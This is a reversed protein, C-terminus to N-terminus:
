YPNPTTGNWVSFQKLVAVALLRFLRHGHFKSSARLITGAKEQHRQKTARMGASPQCPFNLGLLVKLVFEEWLKEAFRV